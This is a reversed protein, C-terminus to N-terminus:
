KAATLRAARRVTQPHADGLADRLSQWALQRQRRAAEVDGARQAIDAEAEAARVRTWLNSKNDIAAEDLTRRAAAPTGNAAFAAALTVQAAQLDVGRLGTQRAADLAPQLLSVAAGADGPGELLAQALLDAARLVRPDGAAFAASRQQWMARLLPVAQTAQGQAVYTNAVQGLASFYEASEKGHARANSDLLAQQLALAEDYQGAAALKRALNSRYVLTLGGEAGYRQEAHALVERQAAISAAYEANRELATAYNNLQIMYGGSGVNGGDRQIKLAQEYYRKAAEQDGRRSHILGLNNLAPTLRGKPDNLRQLMALTTEAAALAEDSKGAANLALSLVMWSNATALNDGRLHAQRLELSRRAAREADAAPFEGNAMANSAAELARAAALPQAVADGLDIDAAELLMPVAKADLGMHRYADGLSELLRARVAPQDALEKRIREAGNDLVERATLDHRMDRNVNSDSAAFVSVLFDAVREATVANAQAEREALVTRWTFGAAVALMAAGAAFVPWRRRLLRGGVYRWSQTRASVPLHQGIRELDDALAAASAYRQSPEPACARAVIADIDGRLRHRWPLDAPADVSPLGPAAAAAERATVPAAGAGADLATGQTPLRLTVLESLLRGLAFIDAAIGPPEGRLQEPSAYRPTAYRRTNGETSAAESRDLVQAVGFDLLVPVGDDRVLVNSPKLDCHVILRQHAYHLARCISAVLALRTDLDPQRDSSWARLDCGEVYEMVLYPQGAPTAGGDLVRAIQPHQLLALLQRERAFRAIAERDAVGRILKVAARQEFHGDAREALYVAGMGGHGLERRLRWAGLTDGPGLETAALLDDAIRTVADRARTHPAADAALLADIRAVMTADAGADRLAREREAAPLDCVLDFLRRLEGGSGTADGNGAASASPGTM